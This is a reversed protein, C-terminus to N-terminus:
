NNHKIKTIITEEGRQLLELLYNYYYITFLLVDIVLCWRHEKRHNTEYINGQNTKYTTFNMYETRYGARM